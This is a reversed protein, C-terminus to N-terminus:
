CFDFSSVSNTSWDHFSEIRFNRKVRITDYHHTDIFEEQLSNSDSSLINSERVVIITRTIEGIM